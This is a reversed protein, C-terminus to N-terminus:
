DAKLYSLINVNKMWQNQLGGDDPQQALSTYVCGSQYKNVKLKLKNFLM